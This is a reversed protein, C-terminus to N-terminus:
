FKLDLGLFIGDFRYSIDTEFDTKDITLDASFYELGFVIGVHRSFTFGSRVSTDLVGASSIEQYSGAVLTVKTAIWWKLTLAFVADLGFMPLPAFVSATANYTQSPLPNGNHEIAGFLDLEYNLDLGYLGFAGFVRSRKDQMFTYTYNLYYFRTNDTLTAEGTITFGGLNVQDAFLKNERRVRFASFGLAHKKSFRYRGFVIGVNEQEPLGLTGESDVFLSRGTSKKTFKFNTDFRVFGAGVGLTFRTEPLEPEEAARTVGSHGNVLAVAMLCVALTSRALDYVRRGRMRGGHLPLSKAM